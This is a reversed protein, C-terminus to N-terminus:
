DELDLNIDTRDQLRAIEQEKDVFRMDEGSVEDILYQLTDSAKKTPKGRSDLDVAADASTLPKKEDGVPKLTTKKKKNTKKTTKVKIKKKKSTKKKKQVKKKVEKKDIEEETDEKLIDQAQPVTQAEELKQQRLDWVVPKVSEEEARTKPKIAVEEVEEVEEVIDEEKTIADKSAITILNNRIARKVDESELFTNEVILSGDVRLIVGNLILVRDSNNVIGIQSSKHSIKKYSKKDQPILIDAKVLSKVENSLLDNGGIDVTRKAVLPAALFNVLVSGKLEPNVKFIM